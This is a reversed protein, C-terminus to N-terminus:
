ANVHIGEICKTIEEETYGYKSTIQEVIQEKPTNLDLLVKVMGKLEGVILGEERAEECAEETRYMILEELTMYARRAKEDLRVDDVIGEIAKLEEDTANEASSEEFYRLLTCLEEDGGVKGGTYLFIKTVGDNYVIDPNNVVHNKVEYMVRNEGFPDEKLIWISFYEPLKDYPKGASLSKADTLAQCFRSRKPLDKLGYKNPEIDYVTALEEGNEELEEVYLDMRIGHADPTIGLFNKEQTIRVNKLNRKLVRKIIIRAILEANKPNETSYGFLFSDILNLEDFSKYKSM